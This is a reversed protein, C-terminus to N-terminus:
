DALSKVLNRIAEQQKIDKINNFHRSITLCSNNIPTDTNENISKDPTSFFYEINTNFAKAILVLRGASIRNKGYEYKQLQQQTVNIQEALKHRSLGKSLRLEYINIGIQQNIKNIFNDKKGM